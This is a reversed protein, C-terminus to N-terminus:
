LAGGPPLGAIDRMPASLAKVATLSVLRRSGRLYLALAHASLTFTRWPATDPSLFISGSIM